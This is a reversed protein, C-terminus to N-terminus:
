KTPPPILFEVPRVGYGAPLNKWDQAGLGNWDYLVEGDKLTMECQLRQRGTVKGGDPDAFGFSGELVRWVAIDAVSGLTLHGVETHRIQQAPNWTSRLIVDRLPM